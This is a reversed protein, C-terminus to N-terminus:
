YAKRSSRPMQVHQEGQSSDVHSLLPAFCVKSLYAEVNPREVGPTAADIAISGRGHLRRQDLRTGSAACIQTSRVKLIM